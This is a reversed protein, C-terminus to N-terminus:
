ACFGCDPHRPRETSTVAFTAFDVAVIRGALALPLGVLHHLVDYGVLGAVIQVGFSLASTAPILDHAERYRAV